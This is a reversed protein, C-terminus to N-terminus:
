MSPPPTTTPDAGVEGSWVDEGGGSTNSKSPSVESVEGSLSMPISLSFGGHWGEDDREAGRRGGEYTCYLFATASASIVFSLIDTLSPTITTTNDRNCSNSTSYRCYYCYYHREWKRGETATGQQPPPDQLTGPFPSPSGLQLVLVGVVIGEDLSELIPDTVCVVKWLSWNFISM